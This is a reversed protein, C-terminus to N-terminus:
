HSKVVSVPTDRIVAGKKYTHLNV